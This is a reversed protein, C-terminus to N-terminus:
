GAGPGISMLGLWGFFRPWVSYIGLVASPGDSKAGKQMSPASIKWRITNKSIWRWLPAETGDKSSWIMEM